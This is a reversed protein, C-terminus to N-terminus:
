PAGGCLADKARRLATSIRADLFGHELEAVADGASLAADARLEIGTGPLTKRGLLQLDQPNLRVTCVPETGSLKAAREMAARAAFQEDCLVQGIIAEALEVAAATLAAASEQVPPVALAAVARGAARLAALAQAQEEAQRAQAQAAQLEVAERQARAAQEAARIGTAYGEAYGTSRAHALVQEQPASDLSRFAVPRFNQEPSM